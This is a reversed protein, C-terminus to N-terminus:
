FSTAKMESQSHFSAYFSSISFSFTSFSSFTRGGDDGGGGDSRPFEM